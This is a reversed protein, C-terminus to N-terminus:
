RVVRVRAPPRVAELLNRHAVERTVETVPGAERHPGSSCSTCFLFVLIGVLILLVTRMPDADKLSSGDGDAAICGRYFVGRRTM